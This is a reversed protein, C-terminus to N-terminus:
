SCPNRLRRRWQWHRQVGMPMPQWLLETDHHVRDQPAQMMCIAQFLSGRLLLLLTSCLFLVLHSLATRYISDGRCSLLACTATFERPGGPPRRYNSPHLGRAERRHRFFRELLHHVPQDGSQVGLLDEQKPRIDIAGGRRIAIDVEEHNYIGSGARYVAIYAHRTQEPGAREV